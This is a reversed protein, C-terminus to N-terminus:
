SKLIKTTQITKGLRPLVQVKSLLQPAAAIEIKALYLLLVKLVSLLLIKKIKFTKIILTLISM